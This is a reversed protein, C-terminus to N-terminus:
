LTAPLLRMVILTSSSSMGPLGDFGSLAVSTDAVSVDLPPGIM